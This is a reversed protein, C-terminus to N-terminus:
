VASMLRHRLRIMADSTEVADITETLIENAPRREIQARVIAYKILTWSHGTTVYFDKLYPHGELMGDSNNANMENKKNMLKVLCERHVTERVADNWKRCADIYAATKMNRVFSCTASWRAHEVWPDDTRRWNNLHINCVVCRVLPNEHQNKTYVFGAEALAKRAVVHDLPWADFTRLRSEMTMPPADNAM